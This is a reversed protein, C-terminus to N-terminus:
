SDPAAAEAAVPAPAASPKAPVDVASGPVAAAAAPATAENVAAAGTKWSVKHDHVVILVYDHHAHDPAMIIERQRWRMRLFTLADDHDLSRVVSHSAMMFSHLKDRYSEILAKDDSFGHAHLLHGSKPHLVLYGLVGKHAGIRALTDQAVQQQAATDTAM